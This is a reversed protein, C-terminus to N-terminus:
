KPAPPPSKPAPPKSPAPPPPEFSTVPTCRANGNQDVGTVIQRAPCAFPVATVTTGARSIFPPNYHAPNFMGGLGSATNVAFAFTIDIRIPPNVCAAGVCNPNPRFTFNLRVPCRPDPAAPNFTNCVAGTPSFGNTAVLSNYATFPATPSIYPSVGTSTLPNFPRDVGSPCQPFPSRLCALNANAASAVTAAWARNDRLLSVYNDRITTIMTIFNNRKQNAIIRSIMTGSVAVVVGAVSLILLLEILSLGKANCSKQQQFM